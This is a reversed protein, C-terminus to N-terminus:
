ISEKREIGNWSFFLKEDVTSSIIRTVITILIRGPKRVDYSRLM